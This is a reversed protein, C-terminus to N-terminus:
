KGTAVLSQDILAKFVSYDQAGEVKQGAIFFTPTTRVGLQQGVRAENQVRDLVQPSAYSASWKRLDLGLEAALTRFRDDTFAGSGEAALLEFLRDHYPWFAGQEAAAEAAVAARLSAEGLVPLNRYVLRVKGAQVYDLVLQQKAM